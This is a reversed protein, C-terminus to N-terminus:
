ARAARLGRRRAARAGAKGVKRGADARMISTGTTRALGRGGQSERNVRRLGQPLQLVLAGHGAVRLRAGDLRLLRELVPPAALQDGLEDLLDGDGRAHAATVDVGIGPQAGRDGRRPLVAHRGVVDLAGDLLPRALELADRVLLDGVLGVTR